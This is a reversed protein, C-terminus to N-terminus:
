RVKSLLGQMARRWLGPAARFLYWPLVASRPTVVMPADRAAGRLIDQACRAPDMPRVKGLPSREAIDPPLGRMVSRDRHMPTDVAGPCVVTVGVCHAAAEERLALSLGLVAQKTAGYATLLPTPALGAASSMNIIHGRGRSVMRGYAAHVGHVVGGINVDLVRGWDSLSYHRAEGILCVGANNIMVGLPGLAGEAAAVLAEVAEADRVDVTLGLAECGRARLARAQAEAEAGNIDGLCVRAGLDCLAQGLALGIGSAGGTIVAVEGAFRARLEAPGSAAPARPGRVSSIEIKGM